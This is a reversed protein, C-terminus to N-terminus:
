NDKELSRMLDVMGMRNSHLHELGDVHITSGNIFSSLDSALFSVANAVDEVTGLRGMLNDEKIKKFLSQIPEMYTELGSSVITGPAVANIRINFTAWEAALTKTLNQVAARAASTHAMGPIGRLVNATINVIVGNRQPIFFANAFAQSMYFTGNLNNNIVANWGNESIKEATSPFQGGANNILIDVKGYERNVADILEEIENTKRIDCAKYACPGIESLSQAAKKLLSENRSCIFVKGGLELIMQSIGYGIGSRGGSVIAVKNKFLDKAFM